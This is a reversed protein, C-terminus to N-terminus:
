RLPKEDDGALKLMWKTGDRRFHEKFKLGTKSFVFCAEVMGIWTRTRNCRVSLGDLEEISVPLDVLKLGTAAAPFKNVFFKAADPNDADAYGIFWTGHLLNNRMNVLESYEGAIERLVGFFGDRDANDIGHAAIRSKDNLIQALLARMIEFLPKATLANHHFVINLLEWDEPTRQLMKICVSRVENVMSEFAEVFRGLAAHQEKINEEVTM